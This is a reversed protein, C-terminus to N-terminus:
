PGELVVSTVAEPQGAKIIFEKRVFNNHAKFASHGSAIPKIIVTNSVSVYKKKTDFSVLLNKDNTVKNGM